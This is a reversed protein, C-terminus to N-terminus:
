RTKKMKALLVSQGLGSGYLLGGMLLSTISSAVMNWNNFYIAAVIGGMGCIASFGGVILKSNLDQNIEKYEEECIYYDTLKSAIEATKEIAVMNRAVLTIREDEDPISVEVNRSDIAGYQSQRTLQFSM